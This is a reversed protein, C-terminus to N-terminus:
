HGRCRLGVFGCLVPNGRVHRGDRWHRHACRLQSVRRSRDTDSHKDGPSVSSRWCAFRSHAREARQDRRQQGPQRVGVLRGSHPERVPRIRGGLIRQRVEQISQDPVGYPQVPFDHSWFREAFGDSSFAVRTETQQPVNLAVVAATFAAVEAAPASAVHWNYPDGTYSFDQINSPHLPGPIAVEAGGNVNPNSLVIARPNIVWRVDFLPGETDPQADPGLQLSMQGDSEVYLDVVTVAAARADGLATFDAAMGASWALVGEEITDPPSTETVTAM